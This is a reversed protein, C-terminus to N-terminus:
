RPKSQHPGNAAIHNKLYGCNIVKEVLDLPVYYYQNSAEFGFRSDTSSLEYLQRALGTEQDLIKTIAQRQKQSEAGSQVAKLSDRAVIFRAQNAASAFHVQVARAVRLDAAAATQLDAPVFAQAAELEALGEAWRDAVLQFQNAFVQQPYVGRWHNLDDYPFGVM